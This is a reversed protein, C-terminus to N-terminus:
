SSNQYVIRFITLMGNEYIKHFYPSEYFREANSGYFDTIGRYTIVYSINHSMELPLDFDISRFFDPYEVALSSGYGSVIFRILRDGVTYESSAESENMWDNMSMAEESVVKSVTSFTRPHMASAMPGIMIMIMILSIVLAKLMLKRRINIAHIVFFASLAGIAIYGFEFARHSIGISHELPLFRTIVAVGLIPIFVLLMSFFSSSFFRKNRIYSLFGFVSLLIAVGYGLWVILQEYPSYRTLLESFTLQGPAITQFLISALLRQHQSFISWGVFAIWALFVIVPLMYFRGSVEVAKKRGYLQHALFLSTLLAMFIYTTFHHTMILTVISLLGILLYQRTKEAKTIVYLGIIFFMVAFAEKHPFLIAGPSALFLATALYAVKQSFFNRFFREAIPTVVLARVILLYKVVIILPIGTLLSMTAYLLNTVPYFIYESGFALEVPESPTWHSTSIIRETLRYDATADESSLFVSSDVVAYQLSIMLSFSLLYFIRLNGSSKWFFVEVLLPISVLTFSLWYIEIPFSFGFRLSLGYLGFFSYGVFICLFSLAVRRSVM